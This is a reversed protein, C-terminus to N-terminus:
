DEEFYLEKITKGDKRPVYDMFSSSHYLFRNNCWRQMDKLIQPATHKRYIRVDPLYGLQRIKELRYMDELVTTGFNTLMYVITNRENLKSYRKFMQLGEVIKHQNEMTDFAFHVMSTKIRSLEKAIEETVFKADLGQTFDVTAKSDQLQKLLEIRDKCALINADM